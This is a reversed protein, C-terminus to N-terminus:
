KEERVERPSEEVDEAAVASDVEVAIPPMPLDKLPHVRLVLYTPRKTEKKESLLM